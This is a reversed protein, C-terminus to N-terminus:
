VGGGNVTNRISGGLLSMLGGGHVRGEPIVFGFGNGQAGGDVSDVKMDRPVLVQPPILPQQQRHEANDASDVCDSVVSVGSSSHDSSGMTTTMAASTSSVIGRFLGSGIMGGSGEKSSVMMMTSHAACLGSRGRAFKECAGWVCRKGGGHAKCFDTSGQASKGCAEMKCRKGGGHRM